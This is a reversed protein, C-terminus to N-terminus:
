VLLIQVPVLAVARDGAHGLEKKIEGAKGPQGGIWCNYALGGLTLRAGPTPMLAAAIADLVPDLAAAPAAGPDTAVYVWLMVTLLTRAPLASANKVVEEAPEDLYVAPMAEPGVEAWFELRRGTTVIAPSAAILAALASVIQDRPATM